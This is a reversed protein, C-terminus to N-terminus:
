TSDFVLAQTTTDFALGGIKSNLDDNDSMADNIIIDNASKKNEFVAMNTM